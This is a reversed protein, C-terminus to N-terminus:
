KNPRISRKIKAIKLALKYSKSNLIQNLETELAKNERRVEDLVIRVKNAASQAHESITAELGYRIEPLEELTSSDFVAEDSNPTNSTYYQFASESIVLKDFHEVIDKYQKYMWSPMRLKGGVLLGNLRKGHYKFTEQHRTLFFWLIRAKLLNKPVPFNFAWEYDYLHWKGSQDIILNDLNLDILGFSTCVQTQNFSKGFTDVYGKDNIPNTKIEPLTDILGLVKDIIKKASKEDADLVYELLKREASIGEVFEFSVVKESVKKPVVIQIDECLGKQDCLLEYTDLMQMIHKESVPNAAKKEVSKKGNRDWIRTEILFKDRRNTKQIFFIPHTSKM